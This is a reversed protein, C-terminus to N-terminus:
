YTWHFNYLFLNINVCTNQLFLIVLIAAYYVLQYWHNYFTWSSKYCIRYVPTQFYPSLWKIKQPTSNQIDNDQGPLLELYIINCLVPILIFLVIRCCWIWSFIKYWFLFVHTHTGRGLINFPWGRVIYTTLNVVIYM